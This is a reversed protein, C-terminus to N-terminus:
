YITEGQKKIYSYIYISEYKYIRQQKRIIKRKFIKRYQNQQEELKFFTINNKQESIYKETILKCEKLLKKFWLFEM